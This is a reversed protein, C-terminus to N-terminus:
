SRSTRARPPAPRRARSGPAASRTSRARRAADVFVDADTMEGLELLEPNTFAAQAPGRRGLVVIEEIASEALVDLAHDAVDTVRWSTARSRSCARSTPPSTATASSWRASAPSTSSSTATTRSPRQVLRRVGHRGLQGSPGRRPHGHAPRDARRGRLDGRPLARAPGRPHHRPRVRRQRLLSVRPARRDERLRPQGGQHQPPRARRRRSRAGLAHAPPRLRRGPREPRSAVQQQAASRGRLLGVAGIRHDRRAAAAGTNRGLGM